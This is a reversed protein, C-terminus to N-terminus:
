IASTATGLTSKRSIRSRILCNRQKVTGALGPHHTFSSFVTNQFPPCRRRDALLTPFLPNKVCMSSKQATKGARYASGAPIIKFNLHFNQIIPSSNCLLTASFTHFRASIDNTFNFPFDSSFSALFAHLIATLLVVATLGM